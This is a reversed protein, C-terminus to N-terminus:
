KSIYTYMVVCVNVRVRVRKWVRTCRNCRLSSVTHMRKHAHMHICTHAMGCNDSFLHFFIREQHDQPVPLVNTIVNSKGLTLCRFRIATATAHDPKAAVMRGAPRVAREVKSNTSFRTVFSLRTQWTWHIHHGLAVQANPTFAGQWMSHNLSLEPLAKGSMFLCCYIYPFLPTINSKGPFKLCVNGTMRLHVLSWIFYFCVCLRQFRHVLTCFNGKLVLTHAKNCTSWHASCSKVQSWWNRFPFTANSPSASILKAQIAIMTFEGFFM